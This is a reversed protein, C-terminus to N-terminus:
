SNGGITLIVNGQNDDTVALNGTRLLPVDTIWYTGNYTFRLTENASICDATPINSVAGGVLCKISKAGTSNVNLTLEDLSSHTNTNAFTVYIIAGVVLDSQEFQSCTVAKAAVNGATTCSGSFIKANGLEDFMEQVGEIVAAIVDNNPFQNLIQCFYAFGTADLYKKDTITAPM